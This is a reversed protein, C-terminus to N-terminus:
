EKKIKKKKYITTTAQHTDHACAAQYNFNILCIERSVPNWMLMVTMLIDLITTTQREIFSTKDAHIAEWPVTLEIRTQANTHTHSRAQLTDSHYHLTLRFVDGWFCNNVTEQSKHRPAFAIYYSMADVMALSMLIARQWEFRM